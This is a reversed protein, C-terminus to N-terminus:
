SPLDLRQEIKVKGSGAERLRLEVSPSVVDEPLDFSGAIQQYYKFNIKIPEIIKGGDELPLVQSEGAKLTSLHLELAGQVMKDHRGSQVLMVQYTYQNPLKGKDLKFSHLKLESPAASENLIGRYFAIEEKLQVSEDQVAALEEALSKQAAREVQLQREGYVTKTELTQNLRLLNNASHILSGYDGGTFQWYGALYGLLVLAVAVLWHWYWPQQPRVAVKKATNGFHRRLKRSVKRM